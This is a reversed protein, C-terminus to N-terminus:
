RQYLKGHNEKILHKLLDAPNKILLSQFGAVSSGEADCRVDDGIHLIQRPPLDAEKCITKFFEPSPKASGIIDSYVGFKFIDGFKSILFPHMVEGSIFNSNSGISITFGRRYYEQIVKILDQLIIPPNRLFMETFADKLSFVNLADTYGFKISLEDILTSYVAFSSHNREAGSDFVSKVRSYIKKIEELDHPPRDFVEALFEAREIAYAPNASILTNWVDFSIHKM